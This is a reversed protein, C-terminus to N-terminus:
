LWGRQLSVRQQAVFLGFGQAVHWGHAAPGVHKHERGGKNLGSVAPSGGALAGMGFAVVV